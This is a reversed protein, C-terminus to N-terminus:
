RADGRSRWQRVMRRAARGDRPAALLVCHGQRALWRALRRARLDFLGKVGVVVASPRRLNASLVAHADRCAVLSVDVQDADPGALSLFTRILHRYSTPPDGLQAPFDVVMPMLLRIRGGFPRVVDCAARLAATTADFGTAVVTLQRAAPERGPARPATNPRSQEVFPITVAM